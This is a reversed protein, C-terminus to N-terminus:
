RPSRSNDCDSNNGIRRIIWRKSGDALSQRDLRYTGRIGEGEMRVVWQNDSRSVVAYTGCDHIRVEGPHSRLPGEYTLFRKPHDFVREIAMPAAGIQAPEVPVRWTALHEDEELMLDWHVSSGTNHRQVVFRRLPPM